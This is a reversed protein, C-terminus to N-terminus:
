SYPTTMLQDTTIDDVQHTLQDVQDVLALEALEVAGGSCGRRYFTGGGPPSDSLDILQDMLDIVDSSILQHSGGICDNLFCLYNSSSRQVITKSM